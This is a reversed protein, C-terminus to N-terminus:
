NGQPLEPFFYLCQSFGLLGPHQNNEVPRGHGTVTPKEAMRQWGVSPAQGQLCGDSPSGYWSGPQIWGISPVAFTSPSLQHKKQRRWLETSSRLCVITRRHSCSSSPDKRWGTFIWPKPVKQVGLAGKDWFLSLVRTNCTELAESDGTQGRVWGWAEELGQVTTEENLDTFEMEQWPGWEYASNTWM